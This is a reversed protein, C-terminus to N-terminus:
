FLYLLNPNVKNAEHIIIDNNKSLCDFLVSTEFFYSKQLNIEYM